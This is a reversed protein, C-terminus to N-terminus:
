NDDNEGFYAISNLMSICYNINSNAESESGIKKALNDQNVKLKKAIQVIMEGESCEM